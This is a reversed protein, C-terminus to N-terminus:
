SQDIRKGDPGYEHIRGPREDDSHPHHGHSHHSHGHDDHDHDDHHHSHEHGSHYAGSEPEFPAHIARLAAGLGRLMDELVHDAAIRLYGEGVEVAVHRNGLHFAARALDRPQACEIHILAEHAAVVLVLRGDSAQLVDGGRLVDGRPLMLAIEEGTSLRTRLRSKQRADFPLELRAAIAARKAPPM